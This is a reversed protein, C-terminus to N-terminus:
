QARSKKKGYDSVQDNARFECGKSDKKKKKLEKQVLNKHM